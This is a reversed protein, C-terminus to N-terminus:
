EEDDLRSKGVRQRPFVPYQNSNIQAAFSFDGRAWDFQRRGSATFDPSGEDRKSGENQEGGFFIKFPLRVQLCFVGVKLSTNKRIIKGKVKM